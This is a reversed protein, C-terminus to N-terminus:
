LRRSVLTSITREGTREVVIRVRYEGRRLRAPLSLRYTRGSQRTAAAFRRVTRSGRLVTVTVRADRTLRYAIGLPKRNSGGFVPRSLKYSRLVDCRDSRYFDPRVSFRGRRRVLTVRRFDSAQGPLAMRYRVFYYGDSLRRGRQDRGNWTRGQTLGTFRAVRREGLVRRRSSQQFVDVTVPQLVRRQFDLRLGRGVGHPRVSLFGATAPCVSTGGAGDGGAGGTGGTGGTAGGGSTSPNGTTQGGTSPGTTGQGTTTGTTTTTTTTTTTSSGGPQEPPAKEVTCNADLLNCILIYGTYTLAYPELGLQHDFRTSPQPLLAGAIRIHGQGLPLEGLTVRDYVAAANRAGSDASTAAVRGGAAEFAELDVDYQRANAKDNGQLDQIAFGLPTSEFTQRRMGTNFRSAPQNVNKALPDDLTRDEEDPGTAFTSQGVYVRQQSVEDGKIATLESLGRLAGDTLVLNGGGEVWAKLKAAWADKETPTYDSEGGPAGGGVFTVQANWPTFAFCNVVRVVYTGPKPLEETLEDWYRLTAGAYQLEELQDGNKKYLVLDYDEGGTAGAWQVRINMSADAENPAITFEFAESNADSRSCSKAGGPPSSQGPTTQRTQNFSKDATQEGVLGSEGKYSGTYGPLLEDALVINRFGALSQEGAIVKKPDITEFRQSEDKIFKNLDPFFDTNAVDYARLLPPDDGGTAGDTTAPGQLFDIRVNAPGVPTNDSTPCGGGALVGSGPCADVVARWEVPEEKGEENVFTADPRNIAVTLGAQAYLAAQNYDEAVVIWDDQETDPAGVHDDCGRCQVQVSAEGTAVGQFNPTTIDLRMGGNYIGPTPGDAPRREVDFEYISRGTEDAPVAFGEEDEQPETNPPAGPDTTTEERKVRRNPVYGQRGPAELYGTLPDLLDALHSYIIAKNGAVHLQETQPEFNINKDLHSYSMENDIGDANLGLFSDFWDGLTGTTTYNITDYVSGWTQAYVTTCPAGLTQVTYDCDPNGGAVSVEDNEKILPSWKTAEYQAVNIRRAAERIRTDKGLDHRGHPLLTFSLADAFPQGHLDDGAQFKVGDGLMDQYFGQFARTEPESAGSYGRFQYGIDPWDRNPDIGNGNYRQFFIGGQNISGRRWGDPNPLTFYIVTKELVDKFTPAGEKVEPPVIPQEAFPKDDQMYTFATVLDEMARIGGEAGAREIGHISLSLTMRKKGADPVNEDTVRVVTLDHKERGFDTTPTGASIYEPKPDWEIFPLNNGPFMTTPDAEVEDATASGDGYKGDLILVEMYRKWDENNNMFELADHFEQLGIFQTASVNGKSNPDCGGQCAALPDPFVRGLAAYSDEDTAVPSAGAPAAGVAVVAACVAALLLPRLFARPM